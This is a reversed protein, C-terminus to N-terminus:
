PLNSLFLLYFLLKSFDSAVKTEVFIWKNEENACLPIGGLMGHSSFSVLLPAGM